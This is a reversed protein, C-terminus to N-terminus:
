PKGGFSVYDDLDLLDFFTGIDERKPGYKKHATNVYERTEPDTPVRQEVWVSWQAIELESRKFKANATIWALIEGDGKGTTLQKKLAAAKIGVFNLFRQDLPCDYVYEGNKGIITARCKDLMRPLIVFGGLRVRPSRPTQKTLDFAFIAMIHKQKVVRQGVCCPNALEVTVM